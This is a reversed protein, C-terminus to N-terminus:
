IKEMIAINCLRACRNSNNKAMKYEHEEGGLQKLYENSKMCFEVVQQHGKLQDDDDMDCQSLNIHWGKCNAMMSYLGGLKEPRAGLDKLELTVCEELMTYAEKYQGAQRLFM